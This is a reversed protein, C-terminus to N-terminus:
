NSSGKDLKKAEAEIFERHARELSPGLFTECFDAVTMGRVTAALNVRQAFEGYVRILKTERDAKKRGM